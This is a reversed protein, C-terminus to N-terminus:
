RHGEQDHARCANCRARYNLTQRGCRLCPVTHDRRDGLPSLEVGDSDVTPAATATM